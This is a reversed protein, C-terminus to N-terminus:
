FKPLFKDPDVGAKIYEERRRQLLKRRAKTKSNVSRDIKCGVLMTNIKSQQLQSAKRKERNRRKKTDLSKIWEIVEDLGKYEPFSVRFIKWGANTLNLERQRDREKVQHELHISGDIEIIVRHKKSVFDGFYKNLIPFNRYLRFGSLKYQRAIKRIKKEFSVESQYKSKNLKYQFSYITRFDNFSKDLNMKTRLKDQSNLWSLKAMRYSILRMENGKLDLSPILNGRGWASM